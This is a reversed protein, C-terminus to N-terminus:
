RGASFPDRQFGAFILDRYSWAATAACCRIGPKLPARGVITV